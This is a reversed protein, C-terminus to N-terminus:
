KKRRYKREVARIKGADPIPSGPVSRSFARIFDVIEGYERDQIPDISVRAKKGTTREFLDM